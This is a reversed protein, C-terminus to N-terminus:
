SCDTVITSLFYVVYPIALDLLFGFHDLRGFSGFCFLKSNNRSILLVFRRVIFADPLNSKILFPNQYVLSQTFRGVVHTLLTLLVADSFNVHNPSLNCPVTCFLILLTDFYIFWKPTNQVQIIIKMYSQHYM